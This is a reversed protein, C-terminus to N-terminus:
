RRHQWLRVAEPVLAYQDICTWLYLTAAVIFERVGYHRAMEETAVDCGFLRFYRAARRCHLWDSVVTIKVTSYVEGRELCALSLLEFSDCIEGYTDRASAGRIVQRAPVGRRVLWHEMLANAPETQAGPSQTIGGAVLFYQRRDRNWLKFARALRRATWTGDVRNVPRIDASPVFLVNM